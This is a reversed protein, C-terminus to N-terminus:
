SPASPEIEEASISDSTSPSKPYVCRGSIPSSWLCTSFSSPSALPHTDLAAGGAVRRTVWGTCAGVLEPRFQLKEASCAGSPSGFTRGRLPGSVIEVEHTAADFIAGTRQDEYDM